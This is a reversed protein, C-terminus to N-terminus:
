TLRRLLLEGQDPVREFDFHKEILLAFDPDKIFAYIDRIGASKTGRFAEHMLLIVAEVKERRSADLDLFMMSEAFMRVQGYAVVRGSDDEVVADVISNERDPVSFDNAHHARWIEDIREM